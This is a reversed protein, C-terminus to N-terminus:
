KKDNGRVLSKASIKFHSKPVLYRCFTPQFYGIEATTHTDQSLNNHEKRTNLGVAINSLISM